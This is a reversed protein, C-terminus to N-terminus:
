KIVKRQIMFGVKEWYRKTDAKSGISFAYYPKGYTRNVRWIKSCHIGLKKLAVQILSLLNKDTNGFTIEFLRSNGRIRLRAHAEADAFGRVFEAPHKLALEVIENLSSKNYWDSFAHLKIQIQYYLKGKKWTEVLKYLKKKGLVNSIAINFAQIFDLDRVTLTVARTKQCSFGDGLLAGLVYSLDPSARINLKTPKVGSKRRPINYSVMLRWIECTYTDYLTAIEPLTLERKWYLVELDSKSIM